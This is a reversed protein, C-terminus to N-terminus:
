GDPQRLRALLTRVEAAAAEIAALDRGRVIIQNTFGAPSYSPYSGISLGPYRGAIEGLGAAYLGEPLGAAEIGVSTVPVGKVLRPVVNDLM